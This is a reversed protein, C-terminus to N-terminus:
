LVETLQSDFKILKEIFLHLIMNLLEPLEDDVIYLYELRIFEVIKM